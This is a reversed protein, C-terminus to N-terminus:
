HHSVREYVLSLFLKSLSMNKYLKPRGTVDITKIFDKTFLLDGKLSKEYVM